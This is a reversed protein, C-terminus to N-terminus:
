KLLNKVTDIIKQPVRIDQGGDGKTLPSIYEKFIKATNLNKSSAIPDDIMILVHPRRDIETM